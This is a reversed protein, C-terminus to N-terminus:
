GDGRAGSGVQDLLDLARLIADRRGQQAEASDLGNSLIRRVCSKTAVNRGAGCNSATAAGVANALASTTRLDAGYAMGLGVAAAFSDGCGVTDGVDVPFGAFFEFSVCSDTAKGLGSGDATVSGAASGAPKREAFLSGYKGLKVVVLKREYCDNGGHGARGDAMDLIHMANIEASRIHSALVAEPAANQDETPTFPIGTMTQAEDETALIVDSLELLEAFAEASSRRLKSLRPGADFLVIADSTARKAARAISVVLEGNMEDFCFGNCFLVHVGRVVDMASDAISCLRGNRFNGLGGDGITDGFPAGSDYLSFFGHSGNPEVVVNCELTGFRERQSAGVPSGLMDVFEVNERRLADVVFEGLEDTGLVGIAKTDLGLRASALAFNCNGGLELTADSAEKRAKIAAIQLEIRSKGSGDGAQISRLSALYGAEANHFVDVCLNSLTGATRRRKGDAIGAASASASARSVRGRRNIRPRPARRQMMSSTSARYHTNTRSAGAM